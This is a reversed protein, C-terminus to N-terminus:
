LNFNGSNTIKAKLTYDFSRMLSAQSGTVECEIFVDNGNLQKLNMEVKPARLLMDFLEKLQKIKSGKFSIENKYEVDSQVSPSKNENENSYNRDYFEVKLRDGNNIDIISYFYSFGGRTNPFRFQIIPDCSNDGKFDYAQLTKAPNQNSCTVSRLSHIANLQADTLKYTAVGDVDIVDGIEGAITVTNVTLENVFISIYNDFGRCVEIVEPTLFTLKDAVLPNTFNDFLLREGLISFYTGDLDDVAGVGDTFVFNDFIYNDFIFNDDEPVSGDRIKLSTEFKEVSLNKTGGFDFEFGHLQLAKFFESADVSFVGTATNPFVNRIVATKTPVYLSKIVIDCVYDAPNGVVSDTTFEFIAPNTCNFFLGPQKILTIAM